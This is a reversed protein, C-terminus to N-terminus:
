ATQGVCFNGQEDSKIFIRGQQWFINVSTKFISVAISMTSLNIVLQGSMYAQVADIGAAYRTNNVQNIVNM